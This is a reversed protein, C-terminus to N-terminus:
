MFDLNLSIFFLRGSEFKSMARVEFLRSSSHQRHLSRYDQSPDFNTVKMPSRQDRQGRGLPGDPESHGARPDFQGGGGGGTKPDYHGPRVSFHHSPLQPNNMLMNFRELAM